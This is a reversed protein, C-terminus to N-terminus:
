EGIIDLLYMKDKNIFKYQGEITSSIIDDGVKNDNKNILSCLVYGPRYKDGIVAGAQIWLKVRYGDEFAIDYLKLIKSSAIGTLKFTDGDMHLIRQMKTLDIEKIRLVRRYIIISSM